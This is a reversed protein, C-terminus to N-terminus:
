HPDDIIMNYISKNDVPLHHLQKVDMFSDMWILKPHWSKSVVLELGFTTKHGSRTFFLSIQKRAGSMFVVFKM